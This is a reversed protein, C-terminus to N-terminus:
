VVFRFMEVTPADNSSVTFAVKIQLSGISPVKLQSRVENIFSDTVSTMAVFAAGNVSYSFTIDTNSPLSNYYAAVEELTKQVHRQNQFLMKTNFYASEYKNSMDIRDIGFVTEDSYGWAVYLLGDIVMIGGIHINATVDESIPWDLTLSKEYDRSYNGFSYVGQLAPNGSAKSLGFVPSGNFNATSGPNVLVTATNSYDGPIRKYQELAEGNYFYFNGSKGANAIMYNDDRIFANVGEEEVTDKGTVTTSVTDWRFIASKAVGGNVITGMLVDNEYDTMCKIRHEKEITSLAANNFEDELNVSAVQYGDGIFLERGQLSGQIAMPHFEEDTIAFTQWNPVANVWEDDADAIAIRHM